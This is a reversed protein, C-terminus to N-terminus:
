DAYQWPTERPDDPVYRIGSGDAPAPKVLKTAAPLARMVTPEVMRAQVRKRNHRQAMEERGYIGAFLDGFAKRLTCAEACAGLMIDPKRQWLEIPEYKGDPTVFEPVYSRWSATVWLVEPDDRVLVGSKAAVPLSGEPEAGWSDTWSGDARQYMTGRQNIFRPHVSALNRMINVSCIFVLKSRGTRDDYEFEPGIGPQWPDIHSGCQHVFQIFAEEPLHAYMRRLAADAVNQRVIDYRAALESPPGGQRLRWDDHVDRMLEPTSGTLKAAQEDSLWREGDPERLVGDKDVSWDPSVIGRYLGFVINQDSM